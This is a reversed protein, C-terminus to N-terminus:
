EVSSVCLFAANVYGGGAKMWLSMDAAVTYESFPLTDGDQYEGLRDFETGMGARITLGLGGTNCVVVSEASTPAAPVTSSKPAPTPQAGCALISLVLVAIVLKTKM